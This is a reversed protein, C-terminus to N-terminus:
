MSEIVEKWGRKLEGNKAMMESQIWSNFLETMQVKDDTIKAKRNLPIKRGSSYDLYYIAYKPYENTREKNTKVTLFKKVATSARQFVRREIIEAPKLPPKKVGEYRPIAVLDLIQKIRVDTIDEATKDNRIPQGEVFTASLIRAFPMQRVMEWTNTKINYHISPELIPEGDHETKIDYYKLQAVLKPKVMTYIRGDHTPYMFGKSVAPEFQSWLYGREEETLGGGVRGLIQYNGDPYRLAVLCSALQDSTIQSDERGSAVGIIAADILHVPKIKYTTSGARVIIGEHGQELVYKHYFDQIRYVNDVRKSYILSARGEKPFLNVMEKYRKSYNLDSYEKGDLLLIDFVKFGVKELDETSQPNRRIKILDHITSRQSFNESPTFSAHMEGVLLAEQIDQQKMIQELDNAVPLGLYVRHTPVNFFFSENKATNYYYGTFGGDVKISLIFKNGILNPIEEEKRAIFRQAILRRYLDVKRVLKPYPATQPKGRIYQQFSNEIQSKPLKM